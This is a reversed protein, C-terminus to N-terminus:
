TGITELTKKLEFYLASELGCANCHHGLLGSLLEDDTSTVTGIKYCFRSEGALVNGHIDISPTCFKKLYRLTGITKPFNKLAHAASRLNFCMPTTRTASINNKVARGLPTILPIATELTVNEHAPAVVPRPYYRPDNTIQIKAGSALLKEGLEKDDEFVTGNTLVLVIGEDGWENCLSIFDLLLPHQAPEGGSIMIFLPPALREIFSKVACFTALTMHEGIPTADEMCHPCDM